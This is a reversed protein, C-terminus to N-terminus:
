IHILSLDGGRVDILVIDSDRLDKVFLDLDILEKDIDYTNYFKFNLANNTVKNVKKVAELLSPRFQYGVMTIRVM